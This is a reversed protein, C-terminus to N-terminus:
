DSLSERCLRAAEEDPLCEMVGVRVASVVETLTDCLTDHFAQEERIVSCGPLLVTFAQVDKCPIFHNRSEQRILAIGRVRCSMNKYCATKGSWPTGYATVMGDKMRITPNDDNLLECGEFYRMWLGSHTSKGAGSRGMFIYAGGDLCVTSAHLSVARHPIVAQSYAIRILNSLATGGCMGDRRAAIRIDTFSADAYMSLTNERNMMASSEVVYGNEHKWLRITNSRDTSEETILRCGYPRSAPADCVVRCRFLCDGDPVRDCVFPSFSPLLEHIDLEESLSIRFVFEAVRYYYTKNM